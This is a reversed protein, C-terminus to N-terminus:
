KSQQMKGFCDLFLAAIFAMFTVFLTPMVDAMNSIFYANGMGLSDFRDNFPEEVFFSDPLFIQTIGSLVPNEFNAIELCRMAIQISAPYLLNMLGSTFWLQLTNFLVWTNAMSGGITIGIIILVGISLELLWQLFNEISNSSGGEIVPEKVQAVFYTPPIAVLGQTSVFKDPNVVIVSIEEGM